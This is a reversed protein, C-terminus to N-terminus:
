RPRAARRSGPVTGRRHRGRPPAAPRTSSPRRSRPARGRSVLLEVFEHFQAARPIRVPLPGATLAKEHAVEALNCGGTSADIGIVSVSVLREMGAKSFVEHRGFGTNMTQPPARPLEGEVAQDVAQDDSQERHADHEDM